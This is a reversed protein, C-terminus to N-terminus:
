LSIDLSGEYKFIQVCKGSTYEDGIDNRLTSSKKRRYSKRSKSEM